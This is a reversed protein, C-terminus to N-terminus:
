FVKSRRIRENRDSFRTPQKDLLETIFAFTRPIEEEWNKQPTDWFETVFRRIGMEWATIITKKFDVQGDGLSLNRYIGPKTDKLHLAVIHGTGKKLDDMVDFMELLSANTINGIDPYIQLFPSKCRTIYHMAKAVSNMFPTEMTEFALTVGAKAAMLVCKELRQSFYRRTAENSTEYYTDYGALMIIRIGFESAFRIAKEMIQLSREGTEPNESGLPYKRHGSLCISGLPLITEVATHLRQKDAQSMELRSLRADSEDISIELFDFGFKKAYVLKEELILSDPLAKEYLGLSYSKTQSM